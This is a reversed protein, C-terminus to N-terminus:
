PLLCLGQFLWTCFSIGPLCKFLFLFTNEFKLTSRFKPLSTSSRPINTLIRLSTKSVFLQKLLISTALYICPFSNLPPPSMHHQSYAWLLDKDTALNTRWPTNSWHSSLKGWVSLAKNTNCGWMIRERTILVPSQQFSFVFILVLKDRFTM